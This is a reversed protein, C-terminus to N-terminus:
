PITVGAVTAPPLFGPSVTDTNNISYRAFFNDRDSFRHDIRMDATHAFQSQVPSSIFQCTPTCGTLTPYLAAYNAGVGNIQALTIVNNTYPVHTVPNYIPTTIDSFNGVQQVGNCVIRGLECASPITATFTNGKIKRFGEYDAFFFTKDKKIPGGISGGFQNQKYPPNAATAAVFYNKADLHENRFFEFLSGHFTNTGSKTILNVVGGATRGVEAAYSNTD